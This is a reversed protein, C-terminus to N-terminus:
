RELFHSGQRSGLIAELALEDEKEAAEFLASTAEGPSAFTRPQADQAFSSHVLGVALLLALLLLLLISSAFGCALRVIFTEMTELTMNNTRM